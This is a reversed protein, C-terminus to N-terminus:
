KMLATIHKSLTIKNLPVRNGLEAVLEAGAVNGIFGTIDWPADCKVLLSTVALVGDGAGVRDLVRSALSPYEHFTDPVQYHLSGAKGKTVTFRGCEIRGAMERVLDHLAGDRRRTEMQVEHMAVCVYDARRYKSVPNFGRNGANSQVNVALFPARSCLTEIAPPPLM